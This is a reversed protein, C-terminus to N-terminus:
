LSHVYMGFGYYTALTTMAQSVGTTDLISRQENGLYDDFFLLLPRHKNCSDGADPSSTHNSQHEHQGDSWVTRVFSQAMDFVKDRLTQNTGDAERQTLVHMDNTSYANVVIDPGRAAEPILGYKLLSVGVNTNTGGMAVRVVKFLKPIDDSYERNDLSDRDDELRGTLFSMVMRNLFQELRNAYNCESPPMNIERPRHMGLPLSHCNQGWLVSGGLVLMTVPPPPPHSSSNSSRYEYRQDLRDVLRSVSELSDPLSVTSFHLRSSIFHLLRATFDHYYYKEDNPVLRSSAHIRRLNRMWLSLATPTLSTREDTAAGAAYRLGQCVRHSAFSSEKPGQKKSTRRASELRVGDVGENALREREVVETTDKKAEPEGLFFLRPHFAPLTLMVKTYVAITGCLALVLLFQRSYRGKLLCRAITRMM